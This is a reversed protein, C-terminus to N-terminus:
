PLLFVARVCAGPSLVAGSDAGSGAGIAAGTFGGAATFGGNAGAFLEGYPLRVHGRALGSIQGGSLSGEIRGVASPNVAGNVAFEGLFAGVGTNDDVLSQVRLKIPGNLRAESSAATGAYVARTYTYTDGGNISCSRHVSRVVNTADFTASVAAVSGSDIVAVAIGATMLAAGVLAALVVLWKNRM